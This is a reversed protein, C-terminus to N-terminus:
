PVPVITFGLASPANDLVIGFQAMEPHTM